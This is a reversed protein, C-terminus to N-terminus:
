QMEILVQGKEVSQSKTVEVTDVIGEGTAKLVNEMKMAELIVLPDGEKVAQGSEVLIDLILGPMPAKITSLLTTSVASLGMKEVLKDYEDSVLVTHESGDISLKIEHGKISILKIHHGQNNEIMHYADSATNVLDLDQIDQETLELSSDGTQLTYTKMRHDSNIHQAM